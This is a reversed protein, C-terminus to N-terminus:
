GQHLEYYFWHDTILKIFCWDTGNNPKGFYAGGDAKYPEGLSDGFYYDPLAIENSVTYYYGYDVGSLFSGTTEYEFFEIDKESSLSDINKLVHNSIENYKEAIEPKFNLFYIENDKSKSGCSQSLLCFTLVLIIIYVKKIM